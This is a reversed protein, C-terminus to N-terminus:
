ATRQLPSKNLLGNALPLQFVEHDITRLKNIKINLREPLISRDPKGGRGAVVM